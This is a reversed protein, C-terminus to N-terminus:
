YGVVDGLPPAAIEPQKSIEPRNKKLQDIIALLKNRLLSTMIPDQETLNIKEQPDRRFNFLKDEESFFDHILKYSGLIIARQEPGRGTGESVIEKDPLFQGEILPKLSRGQVEQPIRGGVLDVVTPFIDLLSVNQSVKKPKIGPGVIILPVRITEQYFTRGHDMGDHDWFEEGHDASVILITKEILGLEGFKEWVQGIAADVLSVDGDYLKVLGEKDVERWRIGEPDQASAQRLEAERIPGLSSLDPGYNVGPDYPVHPDIYHLWLFFRNNKFNELWSLAWHNIEWAPTAFQREGSPSFLFSYYSELNERVGPIRNLFIVLAMNKFHFHYHYPMLKELNVFGDFGQDFGRQSVLWKNTLIAQTNYGLTQMREAMVEVQDTLRGEREVERLSLNEVSIQLDTPLRSSVMSALSPLTWPANVFANEFIVGGQAIADLHPSTESSYGYFGLHDARQADITLLIINPKEADATQNIRPRKPLGPIGNLFRDATLGGVVSILGIWIILSAFYTMRFLRQWLKERKEFYEVATFSFFGAMLGVLLAISLILFKVIGKDFVSQFRGFFFVFVVLALAFGSSTPLTLERGRRAATLFSLCLNFFGTLLGWFLLHMLLIFVIALLSTMPFDALDHLSSLFISTSQQLGFVLGVLSGVVLSTLFKKKM